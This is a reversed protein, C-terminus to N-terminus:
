EDSMRVSIKVRNSEFDELIAYVIYDAEKEPLDMIVALNPNIYGAIQDYPQEEDDSGLMDDRIDSEPVENHIGEM